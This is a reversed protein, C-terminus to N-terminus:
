CVVSFCFCFRAFAAIAAAAAAFCVGDVVDLIQIFVAQSIVLAEVNPISVSNMMLISYISDGDDDAGGDDEDEDGDDDDHDGDDALGEM